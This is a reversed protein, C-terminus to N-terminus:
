RLHGPQPVAHAARVAALIRRTSADPDPMEDPRFWQGATAESAVKVEPLTACQIRYIIDVHRAQPDVVSAFVDGATVYLGTEEAVERVVAEDPQEGRDVLGGPLSWGKRHTQRLALVRGDHEILAVAGISFTPSMLRVLAHSPAAPLRRFIRLGLTRFWGPDAASM